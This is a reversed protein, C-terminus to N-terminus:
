LVISGSVTSGFDHDSICVRRFEGSIPDGALASPSDFPSEMTAAPLSPHRASHRVFSISSAVHHFAVRFVTSSHITLYVPRAAWIAAVWFLGRLMKYHFAWCVVIFSSSQELLPFWCLRVSLVLSYHFVLFVNAVKM